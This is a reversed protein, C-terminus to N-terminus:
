HVSGGARVGARLGLDELVKDIAAASEFGDEAKFKWLVELKDPLAEKVVGTQLPNGRFLPWDALALGSIVVLSWLLCFAKDM